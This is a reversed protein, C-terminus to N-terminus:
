DGRLFEAVVPAVVSAPAGHDAGALVELRGGALQEALRRATDMFFPPSADGALVLSPMKLSGVKEVPIVGGREIDGMVAHDYPMTPAVALMDPDGKMGEVTEVPM